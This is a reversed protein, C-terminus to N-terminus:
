PQPWPVALRRGTSIQSVHMNPLFIMRAAVARAASVMADDVDTVILRVGPFRRAVGDAMAGSGGGIELVDGRLELGNLAWPLVWRRALYRWPDSRCFAGEIASMVPM